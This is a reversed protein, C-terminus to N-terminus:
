AESIAADWSPNSGPGLLFHVGRARADRGLGEGVKLAL